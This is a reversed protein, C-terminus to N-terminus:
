HCMTKRHKNLIQLVSVTHLHSSNHIEETVSYPLWSSNRRGTSLTNPQASSTCRPKWQNKKQSLKQSQSSHSSIRPPFAGRNECLVSTIPSNHVHCGTVFEPFTESSHLLVHQCNVQVGQDRHKGM